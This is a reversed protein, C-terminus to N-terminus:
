DQVVNGALPLPKPPESFSLSPTGLRLRGVSESKAWEVRNRGSQKAVYLCRDASTYLYDLNYGCEATSAAGISVTVPIERGDYAVRSMELQLRLRELVKRGPEQDVALLLAFEEGGFRCVYDDDRMVTSLIASLSVLAADGCDHGYTDNIRKFHDVDLIAFVLPEGREEAEALLDMACDMFAARNMLKTLGDTQAARALRPLLVGRMLLWLAATLLGALLIALLLLPVLDQLLVSLVVSGSYVAVVLFPERPLGLDSSPRSVARSATFGGRLSAFDDSRVNVCDPRSDKFCGVLQRFHQNDFSADVFLRDHIILSLWAPQSSYVVKGEQNLVFLVELGSDRDVSQKLAYSEVLAQRNLSPSPVSLASEVLTAMNDVQDVLQQRRELVKMSLLSLGLLLSAGIWYIILLRRVFVSSDTVFGPVRIVLFSRASGFM